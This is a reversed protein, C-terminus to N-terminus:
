QLGLIEHAETRVERRSIHENMTYLTCQWLTRITQRHQYGRDSEQFCTPLEFLNRPKVGQSYTGLKSEKVDALPGVQTIPSM